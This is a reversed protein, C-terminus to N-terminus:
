IQQPNKGHQQDNQEMSAGTRAHQFRRWVIACRSKEAATKQIYKRLDAHIHVDHQATKEENAGSESHFLQQREPHFDREIRKDDFYEIVDDKSYISVYDVENKSYPEKKYTNIPPVTPFHSPWLSPVRVFLILARKAFSVVSNGLEKVM